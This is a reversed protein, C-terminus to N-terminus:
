DVLVHGLNQRALRTSRRENPQQKAHQHRLL